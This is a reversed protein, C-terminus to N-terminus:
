ESRVLLAVRPPSDREGLSHLARALLEVRQATERWSVRNIPQYAANLVLTDM